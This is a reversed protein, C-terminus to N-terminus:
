PQETQTEPVATEEDIVTFNPTPSPTPTPEATPAPTPAQTPVPTKNAERTENYLTQLTKKGANGDSSLGRSRQYSAVARQTGERYQGTVTGNYFGLEKLKMQLWYVDQGEKGLNLNREVQEPAKTGDYTYHPPEPTVVPLMTKRNLEGPQVAYRLEPDADADEHIWVQMGEEVNDYIWKADAVTLRICGHSGRKGLNNFSSVKLSNSDNAKGYIVSHFAIEETIKTWWRAETNGWKTFLCTTAKRGSLTHTGVPSPNSTSGTTCLFSRDLDTYGKTDYNYKWVKVVQNKVDVEFFYPLVYEPKPASYASVTSPDNFIANWTKEDVTGTVKLSNHAQFAQVAKQTNEGYNTTTTYFTFFGLEKLREQILLVEESKDGRSLKKTFPVYNGTPPVTVIAVANQNTEPDDFTVMEGEGGLYSANFLADWTEEDVVGTISIGNAKQFAEVASQTNKYYGTTTKSYTFYGMDKLKQQVKQVDAGTTGYRLEREFPQYPGPTVAPGPTPVPTPTPTPRIALSFLKEQTKIDAKGTIEMSNEGQFVKVATTTGELYSGSINGSYYGLEVLREQLLKVDLGEAGYSLPRYCDGYIINLTSEDAVGTAELGYAAQVAAVATETAATYQDSARVTTYNLQRLRTNLELVAEGSDGLKLGEEAFAACVTLCIVWVALLLSIKKAM